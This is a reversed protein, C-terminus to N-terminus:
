VFTLTMWKPVMQNRMYSKMYATLLLKKELVYRKAVICVNCVLLRRLCLHSRDVTNRVYVSFSNCNDSTKIYSLKKNHKNSRL